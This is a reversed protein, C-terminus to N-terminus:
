PSIVITVEYIVVWPYGRKAMGAKEVAVILIECPMTKREKYFDSGSLWTKYTYSNGCEVM